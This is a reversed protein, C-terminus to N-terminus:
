RSALGSCLMINKPETLVILETGHTKALWGGRLRVDGQSVQCQRYQVWVTDGSRLACESESEPVFDYLAKAQRGTFESSSLSIESTPRTSEIIPSM